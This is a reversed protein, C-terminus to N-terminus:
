KTFDSSEQILIEDNGYYNKPCLHIVSCVRQSDLSGIFRFIGEALVQINANCSSSNKFFRSLLPCLLKARNVIKDLFVPNNLFNLGFGVIQNCIECKNEFLLLNESEKTNFLISCLTDSDFDTLFQLIEPQHQALSFVTTCLQQSKEDKLNYCYNEATDM